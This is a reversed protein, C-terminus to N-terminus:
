AASRHAAQAEEWATQVQQFEEPDGGKDPHTRKVATTYAHRIVDIHDDPRCVLVAWWNQASGAPPPLASFGEMATRLMNGGGHRELDRLAKVALGAARLNGFPQDYMDVAICRREGGLTFYVAVGPDEIRRRAQDAYPLGDRRIALWSSVITNAAGMLRLQDLLDDMARQWTTKFKYASSRDHDATRGQGDPWHLPYRPELDSM